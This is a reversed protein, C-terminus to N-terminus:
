TSAVIVTVDRHCQLISAPMAPVIPGNLAREVVHMKDAGAILVIRKALMITRIGLTIAFHPIQAADEFLRSNARITEEALRVRRTGRSFASDPENFGIHGNDGIGLLQLDIEIEEILRDYRICEADFDQASGDPLRTNSKNINVRDFLHVNMFHRYSRPDDGRLGCYEDLNVTRVESFNLGEEAHLRVLEDYLGIPTTGTALGLISDPKRVIQEMFIAAAVKSMTKYDRVTRYDINM